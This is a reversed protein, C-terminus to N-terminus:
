AAKLATFRVSLVDPITLDISPDATNNRNFFQPDHICDGPYVESLGFRAWAITLGTYEELEYNLSLCELRQRPPILRGKEEMRATLKDTHRQVRGNFEAGIAPSKEYLEQMLARRAPWSPDAKIADWPTYDARSGLADMVDGSYARMWDRGRERAAWLATTDDEHSRKMNWYDLTDAFVIRCRNFRSAIELLTARLMDGRQEVSGPCITMMCDKASSLDISASLRPNKM